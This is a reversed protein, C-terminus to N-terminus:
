SQVEGGQPSQRLLQAARSLVLDADRQPEAPVRMSFESWQERSAARALQDLRQALQEREPSTPQAAVKWAKRARRLLPAGIRVDVGEADCLEQLGGYDGGPSPVDIGAIPPRLHPLIRARIQNLLIDLTDCGYVPAWWELQDVLQANDEHGNSRMYPGEPSLLADLDIPAPPDAKRIQDAM